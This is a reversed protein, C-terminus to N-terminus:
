CQRVHPPTSEHHSCQDLLSMIHDRHATDAHYRPQRPSSIERNGRRSTRPGTVGEPGQASCSSRDLTANVPFKTPRGAEEAPRRSWSSFEGLASTIRSSRWERRPSSRGANERRGARGLAVIRSRCPFDPWFGLPTTAITETSRKHWPLALARPALKTRGPEDSSM